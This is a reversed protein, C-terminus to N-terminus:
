MAQRQIRQWGLAALRREERSYHRLTEAAPQGCAQRYKNLLDHISNHGTACAVIKNDPIDPGGDGLPWIHHVENIHSKPIHTRHIQCPARTTRPPPLNPDDVGVM